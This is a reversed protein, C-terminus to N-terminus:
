HKSRKLKGQVSELAETSSKLLKETNVTSCEKQVKRSINDASYRDGEKFTLKYKNM